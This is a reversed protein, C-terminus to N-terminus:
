VDGARRWRAGGVFYPIRGVERGGNRTAVTAYHGLGHYGVEALDPAMLLARHAPSYLWIQLAAAATGETTWAACQGYGDLVYHGMKGNAQQAQNNRAAVGCLSLKGIVPPLGSLARQGNLAGIFGDSIM